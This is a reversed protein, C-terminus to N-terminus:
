KNKGEELLKVTNSAQSKSITLTSSIHKVLIDTM